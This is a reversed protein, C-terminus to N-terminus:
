WASRSTQLEGDPGASILAIAGDVAGPIRRTPAQFVVRFPRGWRDRLDSVDGLCRFGVFSTASSSTGTWGCPWDGSRKRYRVFADVVKEIPDPGDVPVPRAEPEREMPLMDMALPALLAVILAALAVGMVAAWASQM